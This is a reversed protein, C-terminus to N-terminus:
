QLQREVSLGELTKRNKQLMNKSSQFCLAPLYSPKNLFCQDYGGKSILAYKSLKKHIKDVIINDWFASTRPKGGLPM